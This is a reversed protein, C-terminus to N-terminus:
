TSDSEFANELKDTIVSRFFNGNERNFYTLIREVDQSETNKEVFLDNDIVYCKENTGDQAIGFGHQVKLQSDFQELNILIQQFIEEIELELEPSALKGALEPAILNSWPVRTINLKSRQIINQYRLGVRSYFPPSYIDEFIHVLNLLRDRFDAWERYDVTTLAVFARNLSVTWKRDSSLFDYIKFSQGAGSFLAEAADKPLQSFMGETMLNIESRQQYFPYIDKIRNLLKVPEELNITPNAPFRLQCVVQQLPNNKYIVRDTEPFLM